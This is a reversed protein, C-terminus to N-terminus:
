IRQVATLLQQNLDDVFPGGDFVQNCLLCRPNGKLREISFDSSRECLPCKLRVLSTQNITVRSVGSLGGVLKQRGLSQWIKAMAMKALALPWATAFNWWPTLVAGIWGNM